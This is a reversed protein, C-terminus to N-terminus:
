FIIGNGDSVFHLHLKYVPLATLITLLVQPGVCKSTEHETFLCYFIISGIVIVDVMITQEVTESVDVM